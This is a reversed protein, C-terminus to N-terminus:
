RGRLIEKWLDRFATTIESPANPDSNQCPRPMEIKGPEVSLSNLQRSPLHGDDGPSVSNYVGLIVTWIGLLGLSIIALM